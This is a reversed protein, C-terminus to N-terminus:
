ASERFSYYSCEGVIIHDLLEVSLLEGAQKIKETIGVDEASPKPNGSPHNHALFIGSAGLLLARVFLERSDVFTTRVTGKSVMFAGTIVNAPSAAFMYLVEEALRNMEFDLCCVDYLMRPDTVRVLKSDKGTKGVNVLHVRGDSDRRLDYLEVM